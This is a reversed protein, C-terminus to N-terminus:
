LYNLPNNPSGNVRVEFHLHPGTSHGTSGVYGIISGQAVQQGSSVAIRSQHGYATSIGNGHDIVVLNGYGGSWGAVIVTGAAAAALPTGYGVGVDIGEHMRGWRWGFGSTLPGNAPWVFGASSPAGVAAVPGGQARIIENALKLSQSRLGRADEELDERKAGVAALLSRKAGRARGLENRQRQLGEAAKTAARAALAADREHTAVSTRLTAIRNRATRVKTAYESVSEILDQDSRAIRQLTTQTEVIEVVSGSELLTLLPDTEGRRYLERLRAGLALRQAVIRDEAGALLQRQTRLDRTLERLRARLRGARDTLADRRTALPGLRGEIIRIKTSYASVESTLVQQRGRAVQARGEVRQLKRDIDAKKDSTPRGSAPVLLVAFLILLAGLLPVGLRM